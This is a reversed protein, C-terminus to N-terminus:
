ELLIFECEFMFFFMKGMLLYKIKFLIKVKIRFINLNIILFFIKMKVIYKICFIFRGYWRYEYLNM